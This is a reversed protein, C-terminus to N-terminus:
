RIYPDIRPNMLNFWLPPILAILISAPYGFPLQPSQLKSELHQYKVDAKEHHHPHRTLEYLFIRGLVHDSNWSHFNSVREFHHSDLPTRQLGYHEIYNIAELLLIAILAIGLATVLGLLGAILYCVGLYCFQLVLQGLLQNKWHFFPLQCQTLRRSELFISKKYVGTISRIWFHFLSENFRASSPDKSTAVYKHHWFNHEVTFHMYLAPLLLAQSFLKNILGPRHGLEHAVNIGMVGTCIGLNLVLLIWIWFDLQQSQLMFLFYFNLFYLLPLNLYLLIDFYIANNQQKRINATENTSNIPLFFELIPIFVFGLYFSGPALWSQFWLGTFGLIPIFIAFLYKM